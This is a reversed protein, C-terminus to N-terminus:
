NVLLFNKKQEVLHLHKRFRKHHRNMDRVLKNLLFHWICNSYLKDLISSCRFSHSLVFLFSSKNKLTFCDCTDCSVVSSHEADSCSTGVFDFSLNYFYRMSIIFFRGKGYLFSHLFFFQWICIIYSANWFGYFTVVPLLLLTQNSESYQTVTLLIANSSPVVMFMLFCLKNGQSLSKEAKKEVKEALAIEHVDMGLSPESWCMADKRQRVSPHRHVIQNLYANVSVCRFHFLCWNTYSSFVAVCIHSGRITWVYSLSLSERTSIFLTCCNVM